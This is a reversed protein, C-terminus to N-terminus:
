RTELYCRFCIDRGPVPDPQVPQGKRVEFTFTRIVHRTQGCRWCTGDRPHAGAHRRWEAARDAPPNAPEEAM